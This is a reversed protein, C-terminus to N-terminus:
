RHFFLGSRIYFMMSKMMKRIKRLSSLYNCLKKLKDINKEDTNFLNIRNCACNEAEKKQDIALHVDVGQEQLANALSYTYKYAIKAIQDVLLIKM